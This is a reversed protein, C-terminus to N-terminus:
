FHRIRTVKAKMQLCYIVISPLVRYRLPTDPLLKTCCLLLSPLTGLPAQSWMIAPGVIEESRLWTHTLSERDTSQNLAPGAPRMVLLRHYKGISGEHVIGNSTSHM